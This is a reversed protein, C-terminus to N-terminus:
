AGVDRRTFLQCGCDVCHAIKESQHRTLNHGCVCVPNLLSCIEVVIEAAAHRADRHGIRYSFYDPVTEPHSTAPLNIIQGHAQEIVERLARYIPSRSRWNRSGTVLVRLEDRERTLRDVEGRLANREDVLRQVDDVLGM